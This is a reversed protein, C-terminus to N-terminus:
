TTPMPSPMWSLNLQLATAFAAMPPAILPASIPTLSRFPTTCPPTKFPLLQTLTAVKPLAAGYM